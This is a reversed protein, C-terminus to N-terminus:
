TSKYATSNIKNKSPGLFIRCYIRLVAIELILFNLSTFTILLIENKNIHSFILDFGLFAPTFPLSLLALCSILFILAFTKHQDLLGFYNMLSIEKHTKKIKILIYVGILTSSFLISLYYFMEQFGYSENNIAISLVCFLQSLFILIWAKLASGKESFAVLVVILGFFAIVLSFKNSLDFIFYNLFFSFFLFIILLSIFFKNSLFHFINGVFKFPNWMIKKIYEDMKWERLNLILLSNTFKNHKFKLRKKNEFYQNHIQYALVSPSVLLQYTRLFANGTFHILALNYYGLAIEIFILGIQTVNAYAIQTKITSQVKCIQNAILASFLGVTFIVCKFMFNSDWLVATRLLLFVGLNVSLSGYFIASSSTPGEMARPLWFSFPFQASKISASIIIMILLLIFTSHNQFILEQIIGFDQIKLFTINEHWISHSFWMALILCIDGLRYLTIIKMANKVPLYRERYFSILFFSTIGIFEWGMMLTEFNGSFVILNYSFFFLMLLSFYRKFGSERHMYYKSFLICLFTIFSGIFAFVFTIKDAFFSISIEINEKQFLILQKFFLVTQDNIFYYLILCIVLIFHLIVTFLAITTIEKEKKNSFLLTLFFGFMPIISFLIIFQEM